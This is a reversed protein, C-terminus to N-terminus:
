NPERMTAAYIRWSRQEASAGDVMSRRVTYTGKLRQRRGDRLAADITVPFTAYQSGAAGEVRIAAGVTARVATTERYGAAFESPSQRSARGGDAWLVYASDYNREALLAFYRRLVASASATDGDVDARGSPARAAARGQWHTIRWGNSDTLVASVSEREVATNTDATTVLVVHGRVRCEDDTQHTSDIEVRAPWPNSTARGPANAPTRQWTALLEPAVLDGYQEGIDRAAAASPALVSVRRMRLGLEEVTRWADQDCPVDAVQATGSRASPMGTDQAARAPASQRCAVAALSTGLALLFKSGSVTLGRKM